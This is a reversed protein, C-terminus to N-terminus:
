QPLVHKVLVISAFCLTTMTMIILLFMELRAAVKKLVRKRERLYHAEIELRGFMEDINLATEIECFSPNCFKFFNCTNTKCIYFSKDLDGDTNTVKVEAVYGCSCKENRFGHERRRLTILSSSTM